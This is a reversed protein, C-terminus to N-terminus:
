RRQLQGPSVLPAENVATEHASPRSSHAPSPDACVVAFSEMCAGRGGSRSLAVGAAIMTVTILLWLLLAVKPFGLRQCMQLPHRTVNGRRLHRTRRSRRAAQRSGARIKECAPMAEGAALRTFTALLAALKPDSVSLRDKITDLAQQERGSLSM